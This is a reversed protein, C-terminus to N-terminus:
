ADLKLAHRTIAAEIPDIGSVPIMADPGCLAARFLFSRQYLKTAQSHAKRLAESSQSGWRRSYGKARPLIECIKRASKGKSRKLYEVDAFLQALCEDTWSRPAGHRSEGHRKIAFGPVHKFLLSLTFRQWWEQGEAPIGFEREIIAKGRQEWVDRAESKLGFFEDLQAARKRLESTIYDNLDSRDPPLAFAANLGRAEADEVYIPNRLLGTFPRKRIGSM